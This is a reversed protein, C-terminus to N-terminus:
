KNLLFELDDALADCTGVTDVLDGAAGFVTGVSECRALKHTEDQARRVGM